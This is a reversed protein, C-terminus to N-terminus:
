QLAGADFRLFALFGEWWVTLMTGGMVLTLVMALATIVPAGIFAVMLQPMARNIVGLGLNYLLSTVLFPASMSFALATVKVAIQSAWYSFQGVDFESGIPFAHYSLVIFGVVHSPLDLMMALALGSVVLLHGIAPLPEVTAGSLMQALSTAQAAMSGALQLTTMFLRLGLGFMLGVLLEVIAFDLRLFRDPIAQNMTSVIPVCVLTVGISLLIKARAPVVREGFGPSMAVIGSVRLFVYFAMPLPASNIGPLELLDPLGATM